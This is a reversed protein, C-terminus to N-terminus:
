GRGLSVGPVASWATPEPIFGLGQQISRALDYLLASTQYKRWCFQIFKSLEKVMAIIGKGYKRNIKRQESERSISKSWQKNLVRKKHDRWLRTPCNGNRIARWHVILGFGAEDHDAALISNRSEVFWILEQCIIYYYINNGVTLNTFLDLNSILQTFFVVSWLGLKQM